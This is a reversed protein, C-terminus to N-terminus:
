GQPPTLPGAVSAVAAELSARDVADASTPNWRPSFDKDVLQARVGEAFDPGGAVVRAVALDLALVAGVDPLRRAARHSQLIAELSTPSRLRLAEVVARLGADDEADEAEPADATATATEAPAEGVAGKKKRRRRRRRRKKEGPEDSPADGAPADEGEGDDPGAAFRRRAEAIVQEDGLGALTGILDTRLLTTPADEGARAEWGIRAFVPRLVALGYKRLRKQAADNNELYGDLSGISGAIDAWIAPDADAPANKALDLYDAARDMFKPASGRIPRGLSDVDPADAADGLDAFGAMLTDAASWLKGDAALASAAEFIDTPTRM